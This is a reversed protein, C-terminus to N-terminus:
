YSYANGAAIGLAVAWIIGVLVGLGTAVWGIIIATRAIGDGALPANSERIEKRALYGLVIGVWSVFFVTIIAAIALPSTRGSPYSSLQGSQGSLGLLSNGCKACFDGESAAHGCKPCFDSKTTMLQSENVQQTARIEKAKRPFQRFLYFVCFALLLLLGFGLYLQQLFYLGTDFFLTESEGDWMRGDLGYELGFQDFFISSSLSSVLPPLLSSLLTAVIAAIGAAKRLGTLMLALVVLLFFGQWKYSVWWFLSLPTDISSVVGLADFPNIIQQFFFGYDTGYQRSQVGVGLLLRSALLVLLIVDLYNPIKILSANRSM